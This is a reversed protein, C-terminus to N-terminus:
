PRSLGPCSRPVWRHSALPFRTSQGKGPVSAVVMDAVARIENDLILRRHREYIEAHPASPFFQKLDMLVVYGEQGHKRYHDRLIKKLEEHHFHLGKGRQSAGNRYIM